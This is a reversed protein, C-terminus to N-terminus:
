HRQPARLGRAFIDFALEFTPRVFDKEANIVKKSEEWLIVGSFLAWLIDALAVPHRDIFVGERIGMELIRAMTGLSKRSLAEIEAMLDLSLNRLTESSQLHFMNIIMLPDFDYVDLLAKKLSAMRAELDTSAEKAVHELRILLYHLIRISLSAYLEDKNKFYLYLTGPSLEAAKAIDEMTARSFGKESFVRKAAVIIQQRRREREREKREQIGM